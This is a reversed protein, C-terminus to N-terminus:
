RASIERRLYLCKVEKDKADEDKVEAEVEAMDQAVLVVDVLIGIETDEAM